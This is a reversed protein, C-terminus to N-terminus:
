QSSFKSTKALSTDPKIWKEPDIAIAKHRIEFYLGSETHGGSDGVTAIVSGKAVKQGVDTLLTENGGYLSMYGDGHDIIVLMGFGNLWDAYVTQGSSISHVQTRPSAAFFMGNWTLSSGAKADGFRAKLQGNVPWPFEGKSRKFHRKNQQKALKAQQDLKQMLQQLKRIDEKLKTVRQKESSLKSQLQTLLRQHKRREQKHSDRNKRLQDVNAQYSKRTKAIDLRVSALRNIDQLTASIKRSRSAAFYDYYTSVRSVKQAEDQSLLLRVGSHQGMRYAANIQQSLQQRQQTVERRLVVLRSEYEKLKRTNGAMKKKVAEIRTALRNIKQQQNDILQREDDSLKSNKKISQYLQQLQKENDTLAQKAQDHSLGAANVSSSPM